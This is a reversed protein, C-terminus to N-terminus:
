KKIFNRMLAWFSGKTNFYKKVNKIDVDIYKGSWTDENTIVVKSDIFIPFSAGAYTTIEMSTNEKRKDQWWMMYGEGFTHYGQLRDIGLIEYIRQSVKRQEVQEMYVNNGDLILINVKENDM